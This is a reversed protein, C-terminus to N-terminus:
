RYRGTRDAYEDQAATDDAAEPKEQSPEDTTSREPSDASQHQEAAVASLRMAAEALRDTAQTLKETTRSLQAVVEALGAGGQAKM